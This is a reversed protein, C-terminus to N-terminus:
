GTKRTEDTVREQLWLNVLTEASVGHASAVERLREALFRDVPFYLTSSKVDVDFEVASTQEWHDALSHTDWYESLEQYSKSGSLSSKNEAM